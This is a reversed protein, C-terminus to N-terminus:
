VELKNYFSKTQQDNIFENNDVHSDSEIPIDCKLLTDGKIPTDCKLHTDGKVPIDCKLLTDGEIHNDCKLLTDSEIAFEVIDGLHSGGLRYSSDPTDDEM